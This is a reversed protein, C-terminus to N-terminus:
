GLQGGIKISRRSEHNIVRAFVHEINNATNSKGSGSRERCAACFDQLKGGLEDISYYEDAQAKRFFDAAKTLAQLKKEGSVEAFLKSSSPSRPASQYNPEMMRTFVRRWDGDLCNKFSVVLKDEFLAFPRLEEYIQNVKDQLATVLEPAINFSGASKLGTEISNFIPACSKLLDDMMLKIENVANMIDADSGIDMNPQLYEKYKGEVRSRALASLLASDIILRERTSLENTIGYSRQFTEVQCRILDFHDIHGANDIEGDRDFFDNASLRKDAVKISKRALFGGDIGDKSSLAEILYLLFEAALAKKIYPNM